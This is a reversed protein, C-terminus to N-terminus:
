PVPVLTKSVVRFGINTYQYYPSDKLRYAITAHSADWYWSGGRNVRFTGSAPGRYDTLTGSPYDAYWDWCWELVNGSMDYLGLENPLKMGVPHTTSGSNESTWAYDGILNSGTSGAFAKVYDDTAGMAAWMWEMETPLRYGSAAWVPTVADWLANSPSNIPVAGGNDHIWDVPDTSGNISYVPTKGELMSLKNCFVLAHYWNIYNVPANFSPILIEGPNSLGTVDMFQQVTIENKTMSFAAVNSIDTSTADRQFAGAPVNVMTLPDLLPTWETVTIDYDQTSADADTVTYTVPNTFNQAGTPSISAGTHTITPSLATVDTATPVIITITHATEDIVGVTPTTLGTFKFSTIAKATGPAVTVKVMYEKTSGDAGTVTYKVPSTFDQPVGSAPSVTGICDITPILATVPTDYPVAIDIELVGESIVGTADFDNPPNVFNFAMIAKISPQSNNFDETKSSCGVMVMVVAVILFGLILRKMQESRPILKEFYKRCMM